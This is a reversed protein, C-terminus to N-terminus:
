IEFQLPDSSCCPKPKILEGDCVDVSVLVKKEDRHPDSGNRFHLNVEDIYVVLFFFVSLITTLMEQLLSLWNGIILNDKNDVVIGYMCPLNVLMAEALFTFFM